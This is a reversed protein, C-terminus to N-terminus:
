VLAVGLYSKYASDGGHDARIFCYAPGMSQDCDSDKFCKGECQKCLNTPSCISNANTTTTISLSPLAKPNPNSGSSSQSSEVLDREM